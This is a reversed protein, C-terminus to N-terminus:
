TTPLDAVRGKLITELLVTPDLQDRALIAAAAIRWEVDGPETFTRRVERVAALANKAWARFDALNWYRVDHVHPQADRDIKRVPSVLVPVVVANKAEPVNDRIWNPHSGAQRAKKVDLSSSDQPDSHDEFVFCLGDGLTWWADPVGKSEGRAARYGLLTGLAAHAIEFQKADKGNLGIAIASEQAAYRRDHVVGLRMLQVELGEVLLDLSGSTGNTEHRDAISRGIEHLWPIGNAASAAQKFYERAVPGLSSNGADCAMMAASGALYNWLARYGRLDSIDLATLVKRAQELAGTFDSNWLANNYEVEHRVATRLQATGPLPTQRAHQRKSVIQENAGEWEDSQALFLRINEQFNDVRQDRSQELGFELEAQLEPHMYKRHDLKALYQHLREGIVVVAAYDTASRTCRGFAQTVRTLIRDNLLAAAGLREVFFREQPHTASPLGEMVLVRCTDDPLDIGDYRNALVAVAHPCAVFNAVSAELARADFTSVQLNKEFWETLELASPKDPVLVLARGVDQVIAALLTRTQEGTLSSEPFLFFRRGVGQADWGKPIPLRRIDRRGTVRELDGGEGLTASMYVRQKAGAFPQHRETPPILPRLLFEKPSLYLHCAHLHDKLVSWAYRLEDHGSLHSDLFTRIELKHRMLVATPIKDVWARDWPDDPYNQIRAYATEGIFPRLLAAFLEYVTLDEFRSIRVSWAKAIYNEAAHADDLIIVDPDAFFPNTNFLSSYATIAVTEASNYATRDAPLYTKRSGTFPTVKIGYKQVADNTVQHVLQLTPCLYVVRERFKRRRWEALLVGVLTKGSGTPLQFAVDPHHLSTNEYERLVDAQHALLGQVRRSRLDRFLAESSETSLASTTPKKFAM